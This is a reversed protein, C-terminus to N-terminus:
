YKSSLSKWERYCWKSGGVWQELQEEPPFTRKAEYWTNRAYNRQFFLAILVLKANHCSLWPLLAGRPLRLHGVEIDCVKARKKRSWLWVGSQSSAEIAARQWQASLEWWWSGFPYRKWSAYHYQVHQGISNIKRWIIFSDVSRSDVHRYVRVMSEVTSTKASAHDMMVRIAPSSKEMSYIVTVDVHDWYWYWANHSRIKWKISLHILWM